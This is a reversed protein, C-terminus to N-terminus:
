VSLARMLSKTYEHQPSTVVQRTEGKEVIKGQHMVAVRDAVKQVVTLDHTILLVGMKREEQLAKVRGASDTDSAELVDPLQTQVILLLLVIAGFGCCIVDLFSINAEEFNRKKRM